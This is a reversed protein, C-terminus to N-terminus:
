SCHLHATARRDSTKPSSKCLGTLRLHHWGLTWGLLLLFVCAKWPQQKSSLKLLHRRFMGKQVSCKCVLSCRACSLRHCCDAQWSGEDIHTTCFCVFLNRGSLPSSLVVLRWICSKTNSSNTKLCSVPAISIATIPVWPLLPMTWVHAYSRPEGTEGGENGIYWLELSELCPLFIACQVPM